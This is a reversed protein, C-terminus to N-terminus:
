FTLRLHWNVIIYLSVDDAYVVTRSIRDSELDKLPFIPIKLAQKFSCYPEKPNMKHKSLTM